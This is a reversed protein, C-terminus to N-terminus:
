VGNKQRRHFPGIRFGLQEFGFSDVTLTLDGVPGKWLLYIWLKKAVQRFGCTRNIAYLDIRPCIGGGALFRGRAKM